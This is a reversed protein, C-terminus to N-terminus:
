KESELGCATLFKNRDFTKYVSLKAALINIAVDDLPMDKCYRVWDALLEYEKQNM